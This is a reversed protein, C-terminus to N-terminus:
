LKRSVDKYAVFTYDCIGQFLYYIPTLLINLTYLIKRLPDSKVKHVIGEEGLLWKWGYKLTKYGRKEFEEPTFSSLHLQLPNEDVAPHYMEGIPVVVIVQKKAIKEMKEVLRLGDRKPLHELVHSALVVDFSKRPFKIKRVDQMIYEDHIELSRAKKIYPGFLDVGVAKDVKMRKKILIMPKGQGCGLDLISEASRDIVWPLPDTWAMLFFKFPLLKRDFKKYVKDLGKLPYLISYWVGSIVGLWYKLFIDFRRAALIVLSHSFSYLPVLIFFFFLNAPFSSHKRMFIMKNRAVRFAREPSTVGLWEIWPHVFTAKHGRHWTKARSYCYLRYGAKRARLSFDSDEYPIFYDEDYNGIKEFVERKVMWVCGCMPIERLGTYQGKDVEKVGWARIRGTILNIDHGAGQLMKKKKKDYVLPQVIGADTKNEFIEVLFKVLDRHAYADDDTFLLYEGKAKELGKNRGASAGVNSEMTVLKVQPYKKPLWTLLPPRSANDVVIIELPKYTSALYSDLCEILDKKRNKSIIIVSVRKKTKKM